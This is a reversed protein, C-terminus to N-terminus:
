KKQRGKAELMQVVKEFKHAPIDDVRTIPEQDDPSCFELFLKRNLAPGLDAIMTRITDAQHATIKASSTVKNGDNDDDTLIM